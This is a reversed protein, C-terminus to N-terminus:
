LLTKLTKKGPIVEAIVAGFGDGSETGTKSCAFEFQDQTSGM